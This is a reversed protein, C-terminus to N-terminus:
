SKRYAVTSFPAVVDTQFRGGNSSYSPLNQPPDESSTRRHFLYRSELKAGQTVVHANKVVM